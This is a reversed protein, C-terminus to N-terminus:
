GRWAKFFEREFAKVKKRNEPDSLFAIAWDTAIIENHKSYHYKQMIRQYDMETDAIAMARLVRTFKEADSVEEEEEIEEGTMFHGVEHLLVFTMASFGKATPCRSIVNERVAKAGCTMLEAFNMEIECDLNETDECGYGCCQQGPRVHFTAKDEIPEIKGMQEFFEEVTLGTPFPYVTRPLTINENVFKNIITFIKRPHAPKSSYDFKM